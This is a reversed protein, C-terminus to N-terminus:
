HSESDINNHPQPPRRMLWWVGIIDLIGVCARDLIRYKSKGAVRPRHGVAVALVAAGERQALIPLFRHIHDFYPLRLFLARDFIKIGCGSDPHRDGLCWLRLRRAWKSAVRKGWADHRNTRHGAIMVFDGGRMKQRAKEQHWIKELMPLDAPLNQGDGDITAILAARAGLIGTRLAASQGLHHQHTIVRLFPYKKTTAATLEAATTDTSADNIYIVEIARGQFATALEAILPAINGAEDRVPVIISIEPTNSM